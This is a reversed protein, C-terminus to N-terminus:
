GTGADKGVPKVELINKIPVALFGRSVSGAPILAIKPYASSKIVSAPEDINVKLLESAGFTDGSL